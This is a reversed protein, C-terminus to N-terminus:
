AAKEVAEKIRHTAWRRDIEVGLRDAEAIWMARENDAALANPAPAPPESDDGDPDPAVAARVARDAEQFSKFRLFAEWEAPDVNAPASANGAKMGAAVAAAVQPVLHQIMDHQVQVADPEFRIVKKGYGPKKPDFKTSYPKNRWLSDEAFDWVMRAGYRAQEIETAVRHFVGIANAEAQSNVTKEPLTPHYLTAPWASYGRKAFYHRISKVKDFKPIVPDEPPPTWGANDGDSLEIKFGEGAVEPDLARLSSRDLRMSLLDVNSSIDM